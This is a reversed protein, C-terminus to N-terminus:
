SSESSVKLFVTTNASLDIAELDDGEVLYSGDNEEGSALKALDELGDDERVTLIIDVADASILEPDWTLELDMAPSTVISSRSGTTGEGDVSVPSPMRLLDAMSSVPVDVSVDIDRRATTFVRLAARPSRCFDPGSTRTLILPMPFEPDFHTRM